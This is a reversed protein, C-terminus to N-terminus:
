PKPAKGDRPPRGNQPPRGDRPPTRSQLPPTRLSRRMTRNSPMNRYSRSLADLEAGFDSMLSRLESAAQSAVEELAAALDVAAEEVDERHVDERHVFETQEPPGPQEDHAYGALQQDYRMRKEPDSLVQYAENINKFRRDAEADQPHLDPHHQRALRRYARTIEEPSSSRDVGLLEYCDLDDTDHM